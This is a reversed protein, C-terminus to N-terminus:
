DRTRRATAKHRRMVELLDRRATLERLAIEVFMSASVFVGARKLATRAEDMRLAVEMDVLSQLRATDPLERKKAM